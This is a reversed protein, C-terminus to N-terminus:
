IKTIMGDPLGVTRAVDNWTILKKRKDTFNARNKDYLVTCKRFTEALLEENVMKIRVKKVFTKVYITNAEKHEYFNHSLYM